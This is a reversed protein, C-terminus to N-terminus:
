AINPLAINAMEGQRVANTSFGELANLQKFSADTICFITHTIGELYNAIDYLIFYRHHKPIYM